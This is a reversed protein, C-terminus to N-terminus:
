HEVAVFRYQENIFAKYWVLIINNGILTKGLFTSSCHTCGQIGL